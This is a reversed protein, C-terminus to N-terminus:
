QLELSIESVIIYWCLLPSVKNFSFNYVIPRALNFAARWVSRRRKKREEGQTTHRTDLTEHRGLTYIESVAPNKGISFHFQLAIRNNQLHGLISITKRSIKIRKCARVPIKLQFVRIDGTHNLGVRLHGKFTLMKRPKM